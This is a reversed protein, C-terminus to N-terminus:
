VEEAIPEKDGLVDQIYIMKLLVAITAALPMALILGFVGLLVGMGIQGLLVLAPPLLIVRKEIQPVLVNSEFSQVAAYLVIVYLAKTPDETFAILVAPVFAVIPGLYPVFNFLGALLGLILALPIDLLWLGLTTLVGIIVMIFIQGLLWWRLIYALQELVERGRPRRSIPLLRILGDQYTQSGAALYVGLVLFLVFSGIVGFTTSIIGPAKIFVESLGAFLQEREPLLTLLNKAWEQKEIRFRLKLLSDTLNEALRGAQEAVSPALLWATLGFLLLILFVVLLLCPTRPIGTPRSIANTLTSLIIALLIGAFLLLLLDKLYWFATLLLLTPITIGLAILVQQEFAYSDFRRPKITPPDQDM